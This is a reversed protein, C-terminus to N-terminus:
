LALRDRQLDLTRAGEPDGYRGQYSLQYLMHSFIVTDTTRNRGLACKIRYYSLQYLAVKGLHIDRTRTGDVAGNKHHWLWATLRLDAFGKNELEFRSPVERIVPASAGTIKKQGSIKIRIRTLTQM